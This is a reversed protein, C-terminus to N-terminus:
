GADVPLRTRRIAPTVRSQTRVALTAFGVAGLARACTHSAAAPRADYCAAADVVPRGDRTRRPLRRDAVQPALPWPGTAPPM